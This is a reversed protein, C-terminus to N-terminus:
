ATSTSRCAIPRTASRGGRSGQDDTRYLAALAGQDDKYHSVRRPAPWPSATPTAATSACRGRIGRRSARGSTTWTEGYHESRFVGANGELEEAVGDFRGYGTSIFLM